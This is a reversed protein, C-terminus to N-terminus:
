TYKVTSTTDDDVGLDPFSDLPNMSFGDSNRVEFHFHPTIGPYVETLNQSLGISQGVLVQDGVEVLPQVYFYRFRTGDFSVEVYRLHGRKEDSPDYPYGIKTVEGLTFSKVLEGPMTILDVGKHLRNGRPAGYHGAGVVDQERIKLSKMYETITM